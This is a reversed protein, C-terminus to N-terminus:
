EYYWNMQINYKIKIVSMHFQAHYLWWHILRNIYETYIYM